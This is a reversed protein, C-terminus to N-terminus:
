RWWRRRCPAARAWATSFAPATAPSAPAKAKRTSAAARGAGSEAPGGMPSMSRWKRASASVSVARERHRTAPAASSEPGSPRMATTLWYWYHGVQVLMAGLLNIQAM